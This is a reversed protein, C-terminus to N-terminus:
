GKEKTTPSTLVQLPTELKAAPLGPSGTAQSAVTQDREPGQSDDNVVGDRGQVAHMGELRLNDRVTSTATFPQSRTLLSLSEPFM